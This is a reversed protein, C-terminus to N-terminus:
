SGKVYAMGAVFGRVCALALETRRTACYQVFTIATWISLWCLISLRMWGAYNILFFRARSVHASEEMKTPIRSTSRGGMHRVRADTCVVTRWGARAMRLCWEKDEAYMFYGEDLYGVTRIAKCRALMACGSVFDVHTRPPKRQIETQGTKLLFSYALPPVVVGGQSEIVGEGFYKLITPGCIGISRDSELCQVLVSITDVEVVADNNLLFVYDAGSNLAELIGANNGGAFGRNTPLPLVVVRTGYLRRIEEAEPPNSGNDVVIVRLTPFDSQLLSEVALFTDRGGNWNLVIAYVLPRPSSKRQTAM